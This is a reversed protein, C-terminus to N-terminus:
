EDRPPRLHPPNLGPYQRTLAIQQNAQCLQDAAIEEPDISHWASRRETQWTEPAPLDRPWRVWREPNRHMSPRSPGSATM